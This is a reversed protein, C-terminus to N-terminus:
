FGTEAGKKAKEAQFRKEEKNIEISFMYLYGKNLVEKYKLSMGAVEEDWIYDEMFRNAKYGPGFKQFTADKLSSFNSYGKFRIMVSSLRDQWFGYEISQLSAGGIRLEDDEKAYIKVGGYSPDTRVYNMDGKVTSFETGWKLGRFGDGEAFANGVVLTLAFVIISAVAVKRTM